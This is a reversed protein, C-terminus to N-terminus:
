KPTVRAIRKLVMDTTKLLLDDEDGVVDIDYHVEDDNVERVKALVRVGESLKRKRGRWVKAVRVPVCVWGNLVADWNSAVQWSADLVFPDFYFQPCSTFCFLDRQRPPRVVASVERENVIVRSALSFAPGLGIPDKALHFFSRAFTRGTTEALALKTRPDETSDRFSVKARHHLRQPDLVKGNVFLVSTTQVIARGEADLTATMTLDLPRDRYVKAPASVQLNEVAAVVREGSPACLAQVTEALLEVGFAMPFIPDGHLTHEPLYHDIRPHLSREAEGGDQRRDVVRGVYPWHASRVPRGGADLDARNCADQGPGLGGWQELIREECILREGTQGQTLENLFWYVGEVPAISTVGTEAVRAALDADRAAAGVEEWATWDVCIARTTPLRRRAFAQLQAAMANNAGCYDIQGRNGFRGAGSGFFIVVDPEYRAAAELLNQGGVIKTRLTADVIAPTKRLLSTSHEVMAGHVVAGLRGHEAVAEDVVQRVDTDSLVDCVRYRLPANCAEARALNRRLERARRRHSVVEADFRVPTMTPDTARVRALEDKAWQEFEDARLDTIADAIPVPSRGTVVVPTGTRALGLACEFTVGRGGGTFVVVGRPAEKQSNELFPRHRFVPVHRRGIYGVEVRDSTTELEDVLKKALSTPSEGRPFDVGCAKMQLEQRLGKLMGLMVGGVLPEKASGLLGLDGGMKTAAFYSTRKIELIAYAGRLQALLRHSSQIAAETSDHNGEVQELAHLDVIVDVAKLEKWQEELSALAHGESWLTFCRAQRSRLETLVADSEASATTATVLVRKGDLSFGRDLIEAPVLEVSLRDARPGRAPIQGVSEDDDGDRRSPNLLPESLVVHANIGGLGFASVGGRRPRHRPLLWPRTQQSLSVGRMKSSRVSPTGEADTPMGPLTSERISLAVKLLGSAGAASSQHGIQAKVTGIAVPSALDRGRFVSQYTEIETEDGLKTGTGHAEIYDIDDVGIGADALAREVAAAEGAPNPAFISRGAGDSSVGIGDIVAVVDDGDLEADELRRLIFAAAGEAPVFGDAGAAFPPVGTPSLAGLLSLSIYYEPLLNFAVGGVVAADVRGRVLRKAAVDLALLSSACAADIAWRCGGSGIGLRQAVANATSSSTALEEAREWRQVSTPEFLENARAAIREITAVEFDMDKLADRVLRLHGRFLLRREHEAEAWRYPLQGIIVDVASSQLRALGQASLMQSAEAAAKAALTWSPEPRDATAPLLDADDVVGALRTRLLPAVETGAELLADVDWRNLPLDGVVSAGTRVVEWFAAVDNARPAVVGCGVIAIRESKRRRQPRRHTPFSRTLPHSLLCHGIQTGDWDSILVGRQRTLRRSRLPFHRAITNNDGDLSQGVTKGRQLSLAGKALVVLAAAPGLDGFRDCTTGMSPREEVDAVDQFAAGFGALVTQEERGRGAATTEIAAIDAGSVGAASLTEDVSQAIKRVAEGKFSAHTLSRLTAYPGDERKTWEGARAVVVAAAAEGLRTRTQKSFPVPPGEGLRGAAAAEAVRSPSLLPTHAGVLVFPADTTALIDAACELAATSSLRGADVSFHGGRLDFLNAIRGGAMAASTMLSDADVPPAALNFLGDVLELADEADDQALELIAQQAPRALDFRRIRRRQDTLLDVGLGTSAIVVRASAHPGDAPMIGADMLAEAMVALQAREMRHMREMQLPPIKLARWDARFDAIVAGLDAGQVDYGLEDEVLGRAERDERLFSSLEHQRDSLGRWFEDKTQGAATRVSLGVIDIPLADRPHSM